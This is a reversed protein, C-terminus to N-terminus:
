NSKEKYTKIIELGKETFIGNAIIDIYGVATEKIPLDNKLFFEPQFTNNIMHIYVISFHKMNIDNRAYGLDQASKFMEYFDNQRSLRFSEIEKWIKPYTSKFQALIQVPAKTAFKFIHEHIKLFQIVPNDFENKIKKIHKEIQNTIFFIIKQILKEKTPFYKYITKKSMGMSKALSEVTFSKVGVQSISELGEKLIQEEQETYQNAM